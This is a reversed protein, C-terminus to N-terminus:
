ARGRGRAKPKSPVAAEVESEVAVGFAALQADVQAVRDRRGTAVYGARENLLAEVHADSM